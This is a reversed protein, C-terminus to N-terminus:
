VRQCGNESTHDTSCSHPSAECRAASSPRSQPAFSDSSNTQDKSHGKQAKLGIVQFLPVVHSFDLLFLLLISPIGTHSQADVGRDPRLDPLTLDTQRCRNATHDGDQTGAPGKDFDTLAEGNAAM